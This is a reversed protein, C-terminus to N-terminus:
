RKKMGSKLGKIIREQDRLVDMLIRNFNADKPLRGEVVNGAPLTVYQLLTELDRL